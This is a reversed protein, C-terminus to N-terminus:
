DHGAAALKEENARRKQFPVSKAVAQVVEHFLFGNFRSNAMIEDIACKDNYELGRGLAYTLLKSVFCRVFEEKKNELLIKKLTAPGNFNEGTVLTGSSDIKQDGELSRWRGVGDFNELGFGIPDMRAHCGACSPNARHQEMRQRLTGTLAKGKEEKLEPVDPPPPPPPTGLLNELVWKGRKVPSTRTPNSTLTLVSAHGLVGGRSADALQVKRFEKGVVNSISYHEALPENLFTYDADLFEMISRNERAVHEIFLFTEKQMAKRLEENFGYLETDPQVYNLNRIQLWQGSFNEVLASSKSDALMRSVQKSINKTLTGKEAERFLEEDPMSSWLFYSLRSALAFSDIEQPSRSHDSAAHIEGRFLFHPSVLMAQFALQVGREVSQKDEVAMRVFAMLKQVEEKSIPRRYAKKAFRAVTEEACKMTHVHGPKCQFTKALQRQNASPDLPGQLEVSHIWVSGLQRRRKEQSDRIRPVKAALVTKGPKARFQISCTQLSDQNTKVLFSSIEKGDVRLSLRMPQNTEPHAHAQVSFLYDGETTFLYHLAVEDEETSTLSVSGDDQAKANYSVELSHPKFQQLRVEAQLPIVVHTVSEAAQLYKELLTPPLTLVDGINDFGYGSDDPPFDGGVQYTTDFLDRITNQYEARNLRRITVRGPDPNNCDCHFVKNEIWGILREKEDATPQKKNDPPMEGSRVNRMVKEWTAPDKVADAEALFKELTLDAKQKKDGHCDFCYTKLLPRIETDFDALPVPNGAVAQSCCLGIAAWLFLAKSKVIRQNDGILFMQQVSELARSSFINLSLKLEM